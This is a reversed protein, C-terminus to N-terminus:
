GPEVLRALLETLLREAVSAPLGEMMALLPAMRHPLGGGAGIGMATLPGFSTDSDLVADGLPPLSGLVDAPTVPAVGRVEDASRALAATLESLAGETVPTITLHTTRPLLTGDSRAISPQLQLLWGHSRVQDAWHHPDVRQNAPLSDDTTVAILPGMPSGFVRLGAIGSITEILM